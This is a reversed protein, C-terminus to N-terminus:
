PEVSASPEGDSAPPEIGYHARLVREEETGLSDDEVIDPASLVQAQTVAVHLFRGALRAGALPVVRVPMGFLGCSVTVWSPEHSDDDLYIARVKGVRRSRTDRVEVGSISDLQEQTFEPGDGVGGSQCAIGRM